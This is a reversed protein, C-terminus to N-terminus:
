TAAVVVVVMVVVIFGCMVFKKKGLTSCQARASPFVRSGRSIM